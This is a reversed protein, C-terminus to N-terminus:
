IFCTKMKRLRALLILKEANQNSHFFYEGPVINSPFCKTREIKGSENLELLGWKKPLEKKPIIGKLALYLRVNGMGQEPIQRHLKKKDETFDAYSTKCEIVYCWAGKWGICDPIEREMSGPEISIISCGYKKLWESGLKCLENHKMYYIEGCFM